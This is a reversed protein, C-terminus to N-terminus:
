RGRADQEYRPQMTIDGTYIGAAIHWVSNIFRDKISSAVQAQALNGASHAASGALVTGPLQATVPRPFNSARCLGRKTRQRSRSAATYEQRAGKDAWTDASAM